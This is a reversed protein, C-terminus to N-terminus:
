LGKHLRNTGSGQAEHLCLLESTQDHSWVLAKKFYVVIMFVRAEQSCCYNVIPTGRFVLGQSSMGSELSM